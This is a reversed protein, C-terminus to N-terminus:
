TQRRIYPLPKGMGPSGTREHTVWIGAQLTLSTYPVAISPIIFLIEHMDIGPFKFHRFM